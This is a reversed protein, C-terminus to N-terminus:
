KCKIEGRDSALWCRPSSRHGSQCCLRRHRIDSRLDSADTMLRATNAAARAIDPDAILVGHPHLRRARQHVELGEQMRFQDAVTPAGCDEHRTYWGMAPCTLANLFTEKSVYPRASAMCISGTICIHMIRDSPMPLLERHLSRCETTSRTSRTVEELLPCSGSKPV